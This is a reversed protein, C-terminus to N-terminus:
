RSSLSKLLDAIRKFTEPEPLPLRMYDRGTKPDREVISHWSLGGDGVTAGDKGKQIACSLKDLFSLGATLVDTWVDQTATTKTTEIGDADPLITEDKAIEVADSATPPMPTPIKETVGEVSEMFRKLRTGGLFVEDQGGDLVGAFMSTKFKLVDLMGHEITGQAIFNVVRVPRRQGLRHVRGIRQELVAPNWPLDMNVVVAANQLNLGVGGADTSLFLRCSPDEKFKMILDKRKRSDVGGHFFVYKHKRKELRGAILNHMLVWQSFVVVKTDPQELVEDLLTMLEDAKAGDDTKKDILFTSNCAMRMNQLAMMLRRQDNETLFGHRRWKAVIRAVIDRNEEHHRMQEDTMPVFFKKDLREPLEKLVEGKTRRILVPKLTESIRSLNKYGIVKGCEDVHQHEALFKFMPGLRFRDVFEVISYLEELRNEIPTGTLVIAYDSQLAKVSRARRTKWNKIRQAEDLVIVDPAWDQILDADQHIVDYNTIKYFSSVAYIERRKARLGEVVDAKRGSFKEIEQKWQHKLSTPSVILAREVGAVKALIEAAAIAQITKGLGMDDAIISRGAAAAFRAGDCQYRYLSTKLLKKFPASNEGGAFAQEVSSALHEQDRVQAVYSVADQACRLEHGNGGAKKLFEDFRSYAERTLVGDEGFWKSATEILESPCKSGARLVVERKAGYRLYVESYEPQFGGKLAERGIRQQELKSLTFEIHKCTGLTNTAYDPCSCYNEGPNQGRIAVRYERHTAPNTVAYESFVPEAGLNKLKFKQERGFERRLRIQWEELSLEPPKRSRSAKQTTRNRTQRRQAQGLASSTGTPKM